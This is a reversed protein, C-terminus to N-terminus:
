GEPQAKGGHFKGQARQGKQSQQEKRRNRSEAGGADHQGVIDAIKSPIHRHVPIGQGKEQPFAPGHAEEADQIEQGEERWAEHDKQSPQGGGAQQQKQQDRRHTLIKLSKLPLLPLIGGEMPRDSVIDQQHPSIRHTEKKAPYQLSHELPEM